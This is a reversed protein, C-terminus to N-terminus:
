VIVRGGNSLDIQKWITVGDNEYVTLIDGNLAANNYAMKKAKLLDDGQLLYDHDVTAGSKSNDILRGVGIVQIAGAIITNDLELVGEALTICVSDIGTKNILKIGGSYGRIALDQGSGGLDIVPFGAASGCWCDLFYAPNSGGLTITGAQLLCQEIVGYIYNLTGISCSKLRANGDLTGVIEADYFECGPLIAAPELTIKTKTMSEGIFSMGSYDGGSNATIDGVIYFDTFGRKGAIIMGDVLNNVPKLPTGHPESDSGEGSYPSTVDITVGGNFSAYVIAALEQLTASSSSTKVIQTYATTEVADMDNGGADVAVLNGGSINCQVFAPGGRAEFALKANKLVLTIGVLVGGGLAQKGFSDILYPYAMTDPQYEISRLTDILDQLSIAESAAGNKLVTIIRPSVNWNVSLDSRVSM